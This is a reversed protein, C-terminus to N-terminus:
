GNSHMSFNKKQLTWPLRKFYQGSISLVPKQGLRVTLTECSDIVLTELDSEDLGPADQSALTPPFM